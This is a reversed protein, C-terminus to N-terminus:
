AYQNDGQFCRGLPRRFRSVMAHVVFFAGHLSMGLCAIFEMLPAFERVGDSGSQDEIWGPLFSEIDFRPGFYGARPGCLRDRLSNDNPTFTVGVSLECWSDRVIFRGRPVGAANM